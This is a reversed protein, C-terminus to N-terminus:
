LVNEKQFVLELEPVVTLKAFPPLDFGVKAQIRLFFRKFEYDGGFGMPEDGATSNIAQSIQSVNDNVFETLKKYQDANANVSIALVLFTLTKM